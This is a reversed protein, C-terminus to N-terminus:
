VVYNVFTVCVCVCVCVHLCVVYMHLVIPAVM